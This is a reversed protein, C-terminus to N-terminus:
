NASRLPRVMAENLFATIEEPAAGVGSLGVQLAQMLKSKKYINLKHESCYVHIRQALKALKQRAK